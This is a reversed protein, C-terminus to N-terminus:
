SASREIKWFSDLSGHVKGGLTCGAAVELTTLAEVGCHALTAEDELPTGALLMVQEEQAIGELLDVHAKIQTVTEQDTVELTHLEQTHVLLQM